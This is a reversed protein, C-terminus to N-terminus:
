GGKPFTIAQQALAITALFSVSAIHLKFMANMVQLHPTPQTPALSISSFTPPYPINLLNPPGLKRIQLAHLAGFSGVPSLLNTNGPLLSVQTAMTIWNYVSSKRNSIQRDDIGPGSVKIWTQANAAGDELWWQMAVVHSLSELQVGSIVTRLRKSWSTRRIDVRPGRGTMPTNRDPVM